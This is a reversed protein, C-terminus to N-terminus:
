GGTIFTQTTEGPCSFNVTQLQSKGHTLLQAFDNVYGTNFSAPNYTGATLEEYFKAEQFGFAFSAGLALYYQQAEPAKAPASPALGLSFAMVVLTAVGARLATSLRSRRSRLPFSFM